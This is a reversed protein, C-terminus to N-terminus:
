PGVGTGKGTIIGRHVLDKILTTLAKAINAATSESGSLSYFNVHNTISWGWNGVDAHGMASCTTGIISLSDFFRTDDRFETVM